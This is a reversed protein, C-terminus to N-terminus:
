TTCTVFAPRKQGRASAARLGEGVVFTQMYKKAQNLNFLSRRQTADGMELIKKRKSFTVNSLTRTPFISSRIRATM